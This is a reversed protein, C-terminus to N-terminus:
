RTSQATARLDAGPPPPHGAMVPGPPLAFSAMMAGGSMPLFRCSLSRGDLLTVTDAIPQRTGVRASFDRADAWVPSSECQSQWIRLADTM